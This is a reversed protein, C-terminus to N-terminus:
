GLEIELDRIQKSLASQSSHLVQAAATLSFAQRVVERVVRLQLLNM